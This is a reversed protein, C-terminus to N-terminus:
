MELGTNERPAGKVNSNCCVAHCCSTDAAATLTCNLHITVSFQTQKHAM